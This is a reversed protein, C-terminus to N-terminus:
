AKINGMLRKLLDSYKKMVESQATTAAQYQQMLQQLKLQQDQSADDSLDEFSDRVEDFKSNSSKSGNLDVVRITVQELNRIAYDNEAKEQESSATQQQHEIRSEFVDKQQQTNEQKSASNEFNSQFSPVSASQIRMNEGELIVTRNM